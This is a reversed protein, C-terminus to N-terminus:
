WLIILVPLCSLVSCLLVFITWEQSQEDADEEEDELKYHQKIIYCTSGHCEACAVSCELGHEKCTCRRTDCVTKCKCYITKPLEEPVTPLSYRVPVCDQWKRSGLGLRHLQTHRGWYMTQNPLNSLIHSIDSFRCNSTVHTYKLLHPVLWGEHLAGGYLAVFCESTKEQHSVASVTLVNKSICTKHQKKLLKDKELVLCDQRPM